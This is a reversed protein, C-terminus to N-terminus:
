GTRPNSVEDVDGGHENASRDAQYGPLAYGLARTLDGDLADRKTTSTMPIWYPSAVRLM